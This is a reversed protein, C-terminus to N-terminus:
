KVAWHLFNKLAGHIFYDLAKSNDCYTYVESVDSDATTSLQEEFTRKKKTNYQCGSIQSHIKEM